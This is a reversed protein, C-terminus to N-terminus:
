GEAVKSVVAKLNLAPSPELMPNGDLILFGEGIKEDFFAWVSRPVPGTLGNDSLDLSTLASLKAWEAHLEGTLEMMSLDVETVREVQDTTM